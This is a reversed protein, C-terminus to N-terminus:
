FVGGDPMHIQTSQPAGGLDQAPAEAQRSRELARDVMGDLERVMHFIDPALDRFIPGQSAQDRSIIESFSGGGPARDRGAAMFHTGALGGNTALWQKAAEAREDATGAEAISPVRSAVGSATRGDRLWETLRREGERDLIGTSPGLPNADYLERLLIYPRLSSMVPNEHIRTQALLISELVAPLWDYTARFAGPPTLLPTPLAAWGGT